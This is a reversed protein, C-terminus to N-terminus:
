SFLTRDSDRASEPVHIRFPRISKDETTAGVKTSAPTASSTTFEGTAGLQAHGPTALLVLFFAAGFRSTTRLRHRLNTLASSQAVAWERTKEYHKM